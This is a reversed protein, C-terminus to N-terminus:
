LGFSQVLHMAAVASSILPVTATIVILAFAAAETAFARRAEYKFYGCSIDRFAPTHNGARSNFDDISGARFSQDIRPMADRRDTRAFTDRRSTANAVQPTPKM